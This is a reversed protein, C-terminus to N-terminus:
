AIPQAQFVNNAEPFSPISTASAKAWTSVPDKGEEYVMAIVKGVKSVDAGGLVMRSEEPTPGYLTEGLPGEGFMVLKNEPFYSQTTYSGDANQVRYKSNPGGDYIAIVPLGQQTLFANLDGMNAVRGSGTGYLYGIIKSNRLIQGVVKKSTLARTPTIDLAGAWREMDGLIDAASDTWLDTGALAEKHGDPVHYDVTINAATSSANALPLVIKGNSLAQMRMYEIRARVDNVAKDVLNFVRQTLVQQEQPTRPFKLAILDKEKIQYKKKFYAAELVQKSVEVSGIEAETDFAHASAAVPLENAGILYDFELTDYKQEPFLQEGFTYQQYKREKLYNLMESQNFLELVDPM